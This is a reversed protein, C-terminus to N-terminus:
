LLEQINARNLSLEGLKRGYKDDTVRRISVKKRKIKENSFNKAAIEKRRTNIKEKRKQNTDICALRM